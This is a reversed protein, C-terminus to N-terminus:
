AAGPAARASGRAPRYEGAYLPLYTVTTGFDDALISAEEEGDSSYSVFAVERGAFLRGDCTVCYSVGQGVLEEEGELEAERYVGTALVVAGAHYADRDTFVLFGDDDPM